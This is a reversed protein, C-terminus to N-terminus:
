NFIIEVNSYDFETKLDTIPNGSIIVKEINRPLKIKKWEETTIQNNSLNLYTLSSMKSFDPLKEIKNNDLRLFGVRKLKILPEIDTINNDSLLISYLNHFESLTDINAIQNGNLNLDYLINNDLNTLPTIDIIQNQQLSLYAVELNGLAELSDIENFDLYLMRLNKLGSIYQLDEGKLHTNNLNLQFLQTLPEIPSIDQIPNADLWLYRLKKMTSIARIDTIENKNLNLGRLNELGMLSSIDTIPEEVAGTFGTDGNGTLRPLPLKICDWIDSLYIDGEQKNIIVRIKSELVSDTWVIKHDKEPELPIYAQQQAEVRRRMLNCTFYYSVIILALVGLLLGIKLHTVPKKKRSKREM